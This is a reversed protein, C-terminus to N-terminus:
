SRLRDLAILFLVVHREFDDGVRLQVSPRHVPHDGSDSLLVVASETAYEPPLRQVAAGDREAHVVDYRAVVSVVNCLRDEHVTRAM